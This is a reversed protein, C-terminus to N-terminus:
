VTEELTGRKLVVEYKINTKNSVSLSDSANEYETSQLNRSQEAKNGYSNIGNFTCRSPDFETSRRSKLVGEPFRSGQLHLLSM